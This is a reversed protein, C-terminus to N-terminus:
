RWLLTLWAARNLCRLSVLSTVQMTTDKKQKQVGSCRNLRSARTFKATCLSTTSFTHSEAQFIRM